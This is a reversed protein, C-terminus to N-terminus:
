WLDFESKYSSGPGQQMRQGNVRDVMAALPNVGAQPQFRDYRSGSVVGARGLSGLCFYQAADHVHSTASKQPKLTKGPQKPDREDYKYDSVFGRRLFVCCKNIMLNPLHDYENANRILGRVAELRIEIENSPAPQVAVGLVNGVIEAWSYEGNERDAGYFSSPDIYVAALPRGPFDRALKDRLAEAFRRAGVGHVLRRQKPDTPDTFVLEDYTERRGSDTVGGIVAAPTGGGDIGITLPQRAGPVMHVPSVHRDPDFGTYIPEGSVSAGWQNRLMRRIYWEPQGQASTIYYGDDLYELNEALPNTQYPPGGPLLGPPQDFFEIWKDEMCREYLVHDIDPKNFAGWVGRSVRMGKQGGRQARAALYGRADDPVLDEEDIQAGHLEWGRATAEVSHTGLARGEVTLECVGWETTPQGTAPDLLPAPFKLDHRFPRDDSGVFHGLERPFCKFWTRLTTGYLNRYTDRLIGGHARRVGDSGPKQMMVMFVHEWCCGTTKASGVPGAISRHFSSSAHFRRITEGTPAYSMVDLHM